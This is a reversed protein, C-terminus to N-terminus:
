EMYVKERDGLVYSSHREYKKAVALLQKLKSMKADRGMYVLHVTTRYSTFGCVGEVPKCLFVPNLEVKFLTGFEANLRELLDTKKFVSFVKVPRLNYEWNSDPSDEWYLPHETDYFVRTGIETSYRHRRILAHVDFDSPDTLSPMYQRKEHLSQHWSISQFEWIPVMYDRAVESTRIKEKLESLLPETNSLIKEMILSFLIDNYPQLRKEEVTDANEKALIQLESLSDAFISRENLSSKTFIEDTTLTNM